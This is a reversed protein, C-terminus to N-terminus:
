NVEFTLGPKAKTGQKIKTKCVIFRDSAIDYEDILEEIFNDAREEGLELLESDDMDDQRVVVPCVTLNLKRRDKMLNGIQDVFQKHSDEVDVEGIPYRLDSVKMKFLDGSTMLVIDVVAAYPILSQLLYTKAGQALAKSVLASIIGSIGFDPDTVDGSLDVDVSFVGYQDSLQNIVTNLPLTSGSAKDSSKDTRIDISKIQTDVQGKIKNKVVNIDFDANLLGQNIVYGSAKAIYPTYRKLDLGKLYGKAQADLTKSFVNMKGTIYVESRKGVDGRLAVNVWKDKGDNNVSDVKLEAINLQQKVMPEMAYDFSVLETDGTLVIENIDILYPASDDQNPESSQESSSVETAEQSAEVHDADDTFFTPMNAFSTQANKYFVIKEINSRISDIDASRKYISAKSIVIDRFQVMPQADDEGVLEITPITTLDAFTGSRAEFKDTALWLDSALDSRGNILSVNEVALILAQQREDFWRLAALEASYNAQMETIKQLTQESAQQAQNLNAINLKLAPLKLSGSGLDYIQQELEAHVNALELNSNSSDINVGQPGNIDAVLLQSKLKASGLTLLKQAFLTDVNTLEINSYQGNIAVSTAREKVVDLAQSKIQVADFRLYSPTTHQQASAESLPALSAPLQGDFDDAFLTTAQTKIAFNGNGSVDTTLVDSTLKGNALSYQQKPSVFKGNNLALENALTNVQVGSNSSQSVKFRNGRYSAGKFTVSSVASKAVFDQLRIDTKRGNISLGSNVRNVFDIADSSLSASAMALQNQKAKGDMNALVMKTKKADITWTNDDTASVDLVSGTISLSALSLSQDLAQLDLAKVQVNNNSAAISLSDNVIASIDLLNGSIALEGLKLSQKALKAGVNTLTLNPKKSTVSMSGSRAVNIDMIDGTSSLGGVSVTQQSVKAVLDSVELRYKDSILHANDNGAWELTVGPVDFAFKAFRFGHERLPLIAEKVNLSTKGFVFKSYESRYSGKVATNLAIKGSAKPLKREVFVPLALIEGIDLRTELKSIDVTTIQPEYDIFGDMNVVNNNLTLEAKIQSSFTDGILRTDLLKIQKAHLQNNEEDIVVIAEDIDVDALTLNLPKSPEQENEAHDQQAASFDVQLLHYLDVKASTARLSDILKLDSSIFSRNLDITADDITILNHQESDITLQKVQAKLANLDLDLESFNITLNYVKLQKNAGWRVIDDFRLWVLAVILLIAVLVTLLTTKKTM